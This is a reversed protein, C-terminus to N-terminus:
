KIMSIIEVKDLAQKSYRIESGFIYTSLQFKKGWNNKNSDQVSLMSLPFCDNDNKKVRSIAFLKNARCQSKM